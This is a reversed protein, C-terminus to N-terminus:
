VFISAIFLGELASSIISTQSYVNRFNMGSRKRKKVKFFNSLMKTETVENTLDALLIKRVSNDKYMSFLLDLAPIHCKNLWDYNDNFDM